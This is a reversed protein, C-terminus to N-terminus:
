KAVEPHENTVSNFFKAWSYVSIDDINLLIKFKTKGNIFDYDYKNERIDPMSAEIYDAFLRDFICHECKLEHRIDREFFEYQQITIMM